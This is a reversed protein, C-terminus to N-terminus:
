LNDSYDILVNYSVVVGFLENTREPHVWGYYGEGRYTGIIVSAVGFADVEVVERYKGLLPTSCYHEWGVGVLQVVDGVHFVSDVMLVDSM